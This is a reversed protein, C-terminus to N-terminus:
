AGKGFVKKITLLIILFSQTIGVMWSITGKWDFEKKVEFSEEAIESSSDSTMVSMVPQEKEITLANILSPGWLATLLIFGLLVIGIFIKGTSKTVKKDVIEAFQM